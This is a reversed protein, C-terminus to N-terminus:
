TDTRMRTEFRYSAEGLPMSLLYSPIVAHRGYLLTQLFYDRV